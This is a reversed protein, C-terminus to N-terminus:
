ESGGETEKGGNMYETFTMDTKLVKQESGPEDEKLYWPIDRDMRMEKELRKFSEDEWLGLLFPFFCIFTWALYTIVSWPTLPIGGIKIVGGAAANDAAGAKDAATTEAAKTTGATGSGGCATLSAAMAVALGLSFLKKKM